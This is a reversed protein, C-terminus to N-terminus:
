IGIQGLADIVRELVGSLTPHTTEFEAAADRLRQTIGPSSLTEPASAGLAQQIEHAAQSLVQRTAPDLSDVESLEHELERVTARLQELRENM